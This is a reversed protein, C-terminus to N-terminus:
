NVDDCMTVHKKEHHSSKLDVRLLKGIYLVTNNFVTVMSYM